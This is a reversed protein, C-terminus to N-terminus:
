AVDRLVAPGQGARAWLRRLEGVAQRWRALTGDAERLAEYLDGVEREIRDVAGRWDPDTAALADLAGPRYFHRVEQHLAELDSRAITELVGTTAM